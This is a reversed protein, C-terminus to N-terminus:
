AATGIADCATRRACRTPEYQDALAAGRAIPGPNRGLLLNLANEQAIIQRQFIRSRLRSTRSRRKLAALKLDRHPEAKSNANFCTWREGFSKVTQRAIELQEDLARLKFYGQAVDSLVVFGCM